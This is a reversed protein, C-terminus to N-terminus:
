GRRGLSANSSCDGKIMNLRENLGFDIIIKVSSRFANIEHPRRFHYHEAESSVFRQRDGREAWHVWLSANEVDVVCSFFISDTIQRREKNKTYSLLTEISNVCHAGTAANQNEAVWRSGLRSPSKYEVAFFPWHTASNPKAYPQLRPHQMVRPLQSQPGDFSSLPYGYQMDPKPTVIPPYNFGSTHPLGKKDFPLNAGTAISYHNLEERYDMTTPFLDTSAFGSRIVEEDASDLTSLRTRIHALKQPTLGPSTREKTIVKQAFDCVVPPITTAWPDIYVSHIELEERYAPSQIRRSNVPDERSSATATRSLPTPQLSPVYSLLSTPTYSLLGHPVAEYTTFPGQLSQPSLPQYTQRKKGGAGASGARNQCSKSMNRILYSDSRSSKREEVPSFEQLWETNCLHPKKITQERDAGDGPDLASLKRKLSRTPQPCKIELQSMITHFHRPSFLNEFIHYV